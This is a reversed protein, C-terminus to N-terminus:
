ESTAGNMAPAAGAPQPAPTTGIQPPPVGLMYDDLASAKEREIEEPTAQWCRELIWQKSMGAAKAQQAAAAQASLPWRDVPM